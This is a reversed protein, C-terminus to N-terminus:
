FRYGVAIKFDGGHGLMSNADQRKDKLYEEMKNPLRLGYLLETRLFFNDTFHTDM